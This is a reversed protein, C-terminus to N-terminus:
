AAAGIPVPTVVLSFRNIGRMNAMFTEFTVKSDLIGPEHTVGDPEYVEGFAAGLLVCDRTDRVRAGRHLEIADHGPVGYLRFLEYGFHPSLYREADFTGAPMPDPPELTAPIVVTRDERLIRGKTSFGDPVWLSHDLTLTLM